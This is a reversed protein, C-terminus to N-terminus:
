GTQDSLLASTLSFATFTKRNLKFIVTMLFAYSDVCFPEVLKQEANPSLYSGQCFARMFSAAAYALRFITVVLKSRLFFSVLCFFLTRKQLLNPKAAEM